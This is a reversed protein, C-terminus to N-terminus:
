VDEGRADSAPVTRAEGRAVAVQWKSARVAFDDPHM